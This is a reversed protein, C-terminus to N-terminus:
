WCWPTARADWDVSSLRDNVATDPEGFHDQFWVVILASYPEGSDPIETSDFCAVCAVSPLREELRVDGAHNRVERQRLMPQILLPDGLGMKTGADLLEETRRAAMAADPLGCLLGAYTNSQELRSIHIVRGTSLTIADM